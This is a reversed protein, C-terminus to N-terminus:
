NRWNRVSRELATSRKHIKKYTNTKSMNGQRHSVAKQDGAPFPSVELRKQIHRKRTSKDSERLTDQTLHTVKNYRNRINAKKTVNKSVRTGFLLFVTYQAIRGSCITPPKGNPAGTEYYKQLM